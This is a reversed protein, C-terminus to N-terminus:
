QPLQKGCIKRPQLRGEAEMGRVMFEKLVFSWHGTLTSIVHRFLRFKFREVIKGISKFEM